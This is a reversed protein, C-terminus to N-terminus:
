ARSDEDIGGQFRLFFSKNEKCVCSRAVDVLDGGWWAAGVGGCSLAPAEAARIADGEVQPWSEAGRDGALCGSRSWGPESQVGKVKKSGEM